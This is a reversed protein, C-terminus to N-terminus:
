PCTSASQEAHLMQAAKAQALEAAKDKVGDISFAVPAGVAAAIHAKSAATAVAQNTVRQIEGVDSLNNINQLVPDLGKESMLALSLDPPLGMGVRMEQFNKLAEATAAANEAQQDGVRLWSAIKDGSPAAMAAVDIVGNVYHQQAFDTGAKAATFAQAVTTARVGMTAMRAAIAAGEEATISGAAEAAGILGLAEPASAALVVISADVAVDKALEGFNALTPHNVFNEFAGVTGTVSDLIGKGVSVLFHGADSMWNGLDHWASDWFSRHPPVHSASSVRGKAANRASDFADLIRFGQASLGAIDSQANGVASTAAGVNAILPSNAPVSPLPKLPGLMASTTLKAQAQNLANQAGTLSSQMSALHADASALRAAVGQFSHQLTSLEGEYANMADAAEQYSSTVKGLDGPLKGLGQRFATAAQGTWTADGDAGRLGDATSQAQTAVTRFMGALGSVVGPDASLLDHARPDNRPDGAM